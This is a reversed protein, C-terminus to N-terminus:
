TTPHAPAEMLLKRGGILVVIINRQINCIINNANQHFVLAQVCKVSTWWSFLGKQIPLLLNLCLCLHM